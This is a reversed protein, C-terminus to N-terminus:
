LNQLFNEPSIPPVPSNRFHEMDRTVIYDANVRKACVSLLADEYDEMPLELAKLCEKHGVDLVGIIKLLKHLMDRAESEQMYHRRAIYYIDTVINSTIYAEIKDEASLFIVKAASTFFPERKALMDLIVNTDILIKM